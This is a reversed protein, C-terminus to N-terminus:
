QLDEKSIEISPYHDLTTLDLELPTTYEMYFNNPNRKQLEDLRTRIKEGDTSVYVVSVVAAKEAPNVSSEEVSGCLIMKISNM